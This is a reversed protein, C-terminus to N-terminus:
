PRSCPRDTQCRRYADNGGRGPLRFVAFFSFQYIVYIHFVLFVVPVEQEDWNVERIPNVQIGARPPVQPGGYIVEGLVADM